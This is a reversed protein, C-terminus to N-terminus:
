LNDSYWGGSMATLDFTNSAFGSVGEETEGLKKRVIISNGPSKSWGRAQPQKITKECVLQLSNVGTYHNNISVDVPQQTEEESGGEQLGGIDPIEEEGEFLGLFAATDEESVDTEIDKKILPEGIVGLIEGYILNTEDFKVETIDRSKKELEQLIPFSVDYSEITGDSIKVFVHKSEEELDIRYYWYNENIKKISNLGDLLEYELNENANLLEVYVRAEKDGVFQKIIIDNYYPSPIIDEVLNGTIKKVVAGTLGLFDFGLISEEETEEEEEEFLLGILDEFGTTEEPVGGVSTDPLYTSAVYDGDFVSDISIGAKNFVKPNLELLAAEKQGQNMWAAWDVDEVLDDANDWKFLVLIGYNENLFPREDLYIIIMNPTNPDTDQVEYTAKEGHIQEYAKGNYAITIYENPGIVAGDPFKVLMDGNELTFQENDGLVINWYNTITTLYYYSLVKNEGTNIVEIFNDYGINYEEDEYYIPNSFKLETIYLEGKEPEEKKPEGFEGARPEIKKGLEFFVEAHNFAKPPVVPKVEPFVGTSVLPRKQCKFKCEKDCVPTEDPKCLPDGLLYAKPHTIAINVSIKGKVYDCEEKIEVDLQENGCGPLIKEEKKEPLKSVIPPGEYCALICKPMACILGQGIPCIPVDIVPNILLKGQSDYDCNEIIDFDLKTNGCKPQISFVPVDYELAKSP